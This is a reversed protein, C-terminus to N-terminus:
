DLAVKSKARPVRGDIFSILKSASTDAEDTAPLNNMICDVDDIVFGVSFSPPGEGAYHSREGIGRIQFYRPRSTGGAWNLNAVAPILDHMHRAGSVALEKKEFVTVSAPLENLTQESFGGTVVIESIPVAVKHMRVTLPQLNRAVPIVVPQFGVFTVVISDGLVVSLSFQGTVDTVVGVDGNTVNAGVLSVGTEADVVIGRVTQKAATESLCLCCLVFVVVALRFSTVYM